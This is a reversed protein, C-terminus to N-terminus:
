VTDRKLAKPCSEAAKARAMDLLIARAQDHDPRDPDFAGARIDAAFRAELAVLDGARDDYLDALRARIHGQAEDGARIQREAIGLANLVMLAQYRTEGQLGPLVTERLVRAADALLDPATPEDRM